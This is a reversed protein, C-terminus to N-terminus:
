AYFEPRYFILSRYLLYLSIFSHRSSYISNQEGKSILLYSLLEPQRLICAETGNDDDGGERNNLDPLNEADDSVSEALIMEKQETTEGTFFLFSIDAM